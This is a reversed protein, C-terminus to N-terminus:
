GPFGLAQAGMTHPHGSPHQASPPLPSFQSLELLMILLACNLFFPCGLYAQMKLPLKNTNFPCAPSGLVHLQSPESALSRYHALRPPVWCSHLGRDSSCGRCGRGTGM